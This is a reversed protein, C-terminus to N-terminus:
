EDSFLADLDRYAHCLRLVEIGTPVERYFILHKPFGKVPWYRLGHLQPSDSEWPSGLGPMDLLSNLTTEVRNLFRNQSRKSDRGM